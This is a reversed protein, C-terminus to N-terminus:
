WGHDCRNTSKTEPSDEELAFMTMRVITKALHGVENGQGHSLLHRAQQDLMDEVHVTEGLVHHRVPAGLKRHGKLSFEAPQQPSGVAQRQPEVRLAVALSLVQVLVQM